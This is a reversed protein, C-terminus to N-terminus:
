KLARIQKVIQESFPGLAQAQQDIIPHAIDSFSTKNVTANIQVGVAKLKDLAGHDLEIARPVELHQAYEFAQVMWRRQDPTFSAATKGSMLVVNTNAEHQTLSLVPAVEYHKNTLYVDASNEAIEVLGTQLSTYVQQFPMHVPIAGYATMFADETKTAQVRVKKGKVDAVSAIPFKAYMNRLGLTILGLAEAGTVTAAIMKRFTDNIGPDLTAKVLTREDAFLYELSFAGAQPSIAAANATANICFDLDGSRVKQAMEPETGLQAAPYQQIALSGGSLEAIKESFRDAFFGYGTEHPEDYGFSLTRPAAARAITPFGLTAGALTTAFARRTLTTSPQM